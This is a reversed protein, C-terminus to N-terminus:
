LVIIIMQHDHAHYFTEMAEDLETEIVMVVNVNEIACMLSTVSAKAVKRSTELRRLCKWQQSRSADFMDTENTLLYLRDSYFKM